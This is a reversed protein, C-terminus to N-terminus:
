GAADARARELLDTVDLERVLDAVEDLRLGDGQVRIVGVVDRWQRESTGGGARYWALKRLVLIEPATVRVRAGEGLDVPRASALQAVDLRTTGAVFVDVKHGSALHVVNFSAHAEVARRVADEPVYFEGRLATGLAPIALRPVDALIDIDHTSRPEGHLSSALSGGLAYRLGLTELVSTIRLLVDTAGDTM